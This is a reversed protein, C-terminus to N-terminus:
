GNFSGFDAKAWCLLKGDQDWAKLLFELLLFNPSTLGDAVIEYRVGNRTLTREVFIDNGYGYLGVLYVGNFFANATGNSFSVVSTRKTPGIRHHVVDYAKAFFLNDCPAGTASINNFKGAFHHAHDAFATMSLFFIWGLRYM